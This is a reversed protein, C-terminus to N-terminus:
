DRLAKFMQWMLSAMQLSQSIKEVKDPITQGYHRLAALQLASLEHPRRALLRYWRPQERVFARLMPNAQVYQWVDRRM